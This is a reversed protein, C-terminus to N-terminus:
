TQKNEFFNKIWETLNLFFGISESDFDLLLEIIEAVEFFILVFFTKTQEM